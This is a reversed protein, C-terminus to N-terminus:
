DNKYKGDIIAIQEPSLVENICTLAPMYEGFASMLIEPQSRLTQMVKLIADHILPTRGDKFKISVCIDARLYFARYRNIGDSM